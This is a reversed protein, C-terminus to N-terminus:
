LKETKNIWCRMTGDKLTNSKYAAGILVADTFAKAAEWDKAQWVIVADASGLTTAVILLRLKNSHNSKMLEAFHKAIHRYLDEPKQGQYLDILTFYTDWEREHSLGCESLPDSSNKGSM